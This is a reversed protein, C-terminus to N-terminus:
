TLGFLILIILAIDIVLLTIVTIWSATYNGHVWLYWSTVIGLPVTLMVFFLLFQEHGKSFSNIFITIIFLIVSIIIYLITAVPTPREIPRGLPKGTFIGYHQHVM